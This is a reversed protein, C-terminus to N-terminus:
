GSRVLDAGFRLLPSLEASQNDTLVAPGNLAAVKKTINEANIADAHNTQNSLNM